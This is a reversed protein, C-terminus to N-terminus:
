EEDSIQLTRRIADRQRQRQAFRDEEDETEEDYRRRRDKRNSSGFKSLLDELTANGEFEEDMPEESTHVELTQPSSGTPKSGRGGSRRRGADRRDDRQAPVTAFRPASAPGTRPLPTNIPEQKEQPEPPDNLRMTLSIRKSQSDVELVRVSVPDGVKVVDEVKGVRNESLQSIHVLGDRGVGIDVFAGFQALGSV